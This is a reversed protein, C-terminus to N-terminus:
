ECGPMEEWVEVDLPLGVVTNLIRASGQLEVPLIQFETMSAPRVFHPLNQLSEVFFAALHIPFDRVNVCSITLTAWFTRFYM